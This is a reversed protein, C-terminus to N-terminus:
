APSQQWLQEAGPAGCPLTLAPANPEDDTICALGVAVNRLTSDPANTDFFWSQAPPASGCSRLAVPQGIAQFTACQGPYAASELTWSGPAVGPTLHFRESPLVGQPNSAVVPDRADLYNETTANQFTVVPGGPPAAAATGCTALAGGAALATVSLAVAIRKM